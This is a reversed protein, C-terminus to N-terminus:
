TINCVRKWTDKIFPRYMDGFSNGKFKGPLAVDFEQENRAKMIRLIDKNSLNEELIDVSVPMNKKADKDVYMFASTATHWFADLLKRDEPSFSDESHLQFFEFSM